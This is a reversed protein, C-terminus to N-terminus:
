YKLLYDRTSGIPPDDGFIDTTDLIIVFSAASKEVIVKVQGAWPDGM